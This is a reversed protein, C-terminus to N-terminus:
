IANANYGGCVLCLGSTNPNPEGCKPCTWYATALAWMTKSPVDRGSAVVALEEKLREIPFDVLDTGERIKLVVGYSWITSTLYWWLAPVLVCAALSAPESFSMLRAVTGVIAALAVGSLFVFVV